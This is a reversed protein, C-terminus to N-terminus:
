EHRQAKGRVTTYAVGDRRKLPAVERGGFLDQPCLHRRMRILRDRETQEANRQIALLLPLLGVRKMPAGHRRARPVGIHEAIVAVM